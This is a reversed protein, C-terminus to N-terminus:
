NPSATAVKEEQRQLHGSNAKQVDRGDVYHAAPGDRSRIAGADPFTYSGTWNETLSRISSRSDAKDPGGERPKGRDNALM